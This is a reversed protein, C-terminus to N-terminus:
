SKPHKQRYKKLAFSAREKKQHAYRAAKEAAHQKAQADAIAQQAAQLTHALQQKEHAIEREHQQVANIRHQLAQREAQLQQKARQEATAAQQKAAHRQETLTALQQQHDADTAQTFIIGWYGSVLIAGIGAGALTVPWLHSVIHWGRALLQCQNNHCQAWGVSLLFTDLWAYGIYLLGALMIVTLVRWSM